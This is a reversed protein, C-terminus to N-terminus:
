FGRRKRVEGVTQGEASVNNKQQSAALGTDSVLRKQRFRESILDVEVRLREVVEIASLGRLQRRLEAPSTIEGVVRQWQGLHSLRKNM